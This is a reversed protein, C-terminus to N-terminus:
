GHPPPHDPMALGDSAVRAASAVPAAPIAGLGGLEHYHQAYFLAHAGQTVAIATQALHPDTEALLTAPQPGSMFRYTQLTRGPQLVALRGEGGQMRGWAISFNHAMAIRGEGKPVHRLDVGFFPSDYSGGLLGLLTPAMDLSSGVTDNRGAPIIGPGYFLLPVRFGEVPVQAAGNIRPGHDGVFIFVTDAFWSHARAREVFDAFAWAAYRASNEFKGVREDWALHQQPFTHPRHNSVTLMSLFMPQGSNTQADLRNLAETFLFEDAVGWITTFGPEAIDGQDLVTDFGITSWYHGMNDFLARGGYLFATDYGRRKLLFPLSNMHESGARRATSIGPIPTFSTLLAELGRVTRDGTAYINTFLLGDKALNTLQPSLDVPRNNDLGDFFTSGFSEEVVLVINPTRQPQTNEVHRWLNLQDDPALFRTNDQQVTARMAAALTQQPVTVYLGEYDADNTLFAAFLSRVGNDAIQDAHRDAPFTMPGINLMALSFLLAPAAFMMVRGVEGAQYPVAFAVQLRRRFILYAGLGALLVPPLDVWLDFSQGINGIVERPFMIYNVAIGNFRSDFENWFFLEAVAGFLLTTLTALAVGHGLWAFWRWRLPRAFLLLGLFFPMSICVAVALDLPIGAFAAKWLGQGQGVWLMLALRTGSFLMLLFALIAWWLRLRPSLAFSAFSLRPM